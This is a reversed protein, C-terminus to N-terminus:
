RSFITLEANLDSPDVDGRLDNAKECDQLLTHLLNSEGCLITHKEITRSLQTSKRKCASLWDKLKSEQYDDFLWMLENYQMSIEEQAHRIQFNLDSSPFAKLVFHQMIHPHQKIM